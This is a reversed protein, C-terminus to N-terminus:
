QGGVEPRDDILDRVQALVLGVDHARNREARELIDQALREATRASVAAVDESHSRMRAVVAARETDQLARARDVLDRAQEEAAARVQQARADGDERLALCQRETTELEAFLAALEAAPDHGGEVPVGTGGAAGPAGSRRFRNLLDRPRLM